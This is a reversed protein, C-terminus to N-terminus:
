TKRNSCIVLASYVENKTTFDNLASIAKHKTKNQRRV